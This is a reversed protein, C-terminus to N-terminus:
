HLGSNSECKYTDRAAIPMVTKNPLHLPHHHPCSLLELNHHSLLTVGGSIESVTLCNRAVNTSAFDLIKLWFM